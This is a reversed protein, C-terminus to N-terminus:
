REVAAQFLGDIFPLTEGLAVAVYRKSVQLTSNSKM